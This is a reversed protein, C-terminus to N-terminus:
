KKCAEYVVRSWYQMTDINRNLGQQREWANRRAKAQSCTSGTTAPMVAGSGASAGGRGALSRLYASEREGKQRAYHRRWLEENTPPPEPVAEWQKHSRQDAACPSSQYSVEKGKTCKHVQQAAAQGAAILLLPLVLIKM